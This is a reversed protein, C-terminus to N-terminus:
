SELEVTFSKVDLEQLLRTHADLSDASAILGDEDIVGDASAVYASWGWRTRKVVIDTTNDAV